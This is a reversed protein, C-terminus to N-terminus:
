DGLVEDAKLGPTNRLIEPVDNASQGEPVSTVSPQIGSKEPVPDGAKFSKLFDKFIVTEDIISNITDRDALLSAQRPRTVVDFKQAKSTASMADGYRERVNALVYRNDALYLAVAWNLVMDAQAESLPRTLSINQNQVLQELSDAADQWKKGRWAIDARLKLASDDQPLLALAAFADDPKNKLSFAKARLLGIDRQKPLVEEAPLGKLFLEAKNLTELAEDPKGDMNQLAALRTAVTAGELGQLGGEVQKKLLATARPLLDADAMREALQRTLVEGAAGEPILDSFENYVTLIDVPSLKKIQENTFLNAFIKHMDENIKKGQESEPNLGHALKMMTLSKVPEGKELYTKALNYNIAVELDDGRWAYRLGELNDVAKDTTIKKSGLQLMTLAFRAKARYLDDAGTTLEKWITEAEEPKGTQRAYEGKLYDFGSAYPLSMSARDPELIDIIKKAKTINGERLAVESLTLGVPYRIDNPYTSLISVDNPLTKAAQQWDDLKALTFAKWYPIEGVDNLGASSLDKYADRYRWSLAAAAGRLSLFEPNADMEPVMQQAFDLYGMAEPAYGFSLMLRALGILNEAKKADTQQPLGSMILRQNTSLDSKQGMQWNSFDFVRSIEQDGSETVTPEPPKAASTNLVDQETSITLGEPRGLLVGDKSKKVKLDDTKAVIALGAASSLVDFDVYSQAPGAFDKASEVVALYISDGADPDKIEAIRQISPAPWLMEPGGEKADSGFLRKLPLPKEKQTSSGDFDVRWVLGGGSVIPSIDQPVKIRFATLGKAEVREFNGIGKVGEGEIQPPVKVDEKDEIIWLYGNRQFVALPISATSTISIRTPAITSKEEERKDPEPEKEVSAGDVVLSKNNELTKIKEALDVPSQTAATTDKKEPAEPKKDPKEAPIEKPKKEQESISGKIDIVLRNDAVLHRIKQGEKFDIKVTDPSVIKYGTIRALSALGEGEDSFTGPSSFKITLSTPTQEVRYKPVKDWDFVIRSYDVKDSGRVKVAPAGSGDAAYASSSLLAFAMVSSLLTRIRDMHLFHWM